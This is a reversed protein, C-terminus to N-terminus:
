DVLLQYMINLELPPKKYNKSLSIKSNWSDLKFTTEIELVESDKVLPFLNIAVKLAELELKTSMTVEKM